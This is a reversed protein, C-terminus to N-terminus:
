QPSRGVPSNLPTMLERDAARAALEDTGDSGVSAASGNQGSSGNGGVVVAARAGLGARAQGWVLSVALVLGSSVAQVPGSSVAQVPGSSVARRL